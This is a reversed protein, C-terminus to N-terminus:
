ATRRHVGSAFIDVDSAGADHLLRLMQLRRADIVHDNKKSYIPFKAGARVTHSSMWDLAEADYALGYGMAQLRQVICQTAWHKAPARIITEGSEDKTDRLAEGDEGICDVANAFQFGIMREDFHADAFHDLTQLFRVVATGASGLDAGWAVARGFLADVVYLLEAQAVYPLGVCQLRLVDDLRDGIQESIVIESPDTTEGFDAGGVFVGGRRRAILPELMERMARRRGEDGTALFPALPAATDAEYALTASKRGDHVALDTRALTVALSDCTRDAHLKLIRFEPLPLVCPLLLSWPFVPSEADGWEGLVNRVYGAAQRSGFRRVFEADREASWFPAPMVTKPWHFLRSGPSSEPLDRVAQQTLRFYDTSRDGDPVSYVRSVCGPELARWFESWQIAAKMKAAEDVFAVGNVHVGRFAEGDHGAPRYYVRGVGPKEGTRLPVTRFRQLMHPVRKPKLWFHSLVSGRASDAGEEAGVQTEVALIIEDLHTQQPAAVLMWPRRMTFGLGTCQGWLILCLIERTKGVEAGDQHVVNQRWARISERQYDFFKWPEGTRPDHLMTECWRVPDEWTFLLLAEDIGIGYDGADLRRWSWGKTALWADFEAPDYVGRELMRRLVAADSKAAANM